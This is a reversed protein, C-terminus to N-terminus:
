RQLPASQTRSSGCLPAATSGCRSLSTLLSFCLVVAITPTYITCKANGHSSTTFTHIYPQSPLPAFMVLSGSKWGLTHKTVHRPKRDPSQIVKPLCTRGGLERQAQYRHQRQVSARLVRQSEGLVATHPGPANRRNPWDCTAFPRPSSCPSPKAASYTAMHSCEQENRTIAAILCTNDVVCYLCLM